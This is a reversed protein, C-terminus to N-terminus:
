FPLDDDGWTQAPTPTQATEDVGDVADAVDDGQGRPREQIVRHVRLWKGDKKTEIATVRAMEDRRELAEAVSGPVKTGVQDAWWQCAKRHAFGGEEHDLCVWESAIKRPVSLPGDDPSYYDVRMTIPAEDDGKKAHAHWQVEGVPWREPVEVPQSVLWSLAPLNSAKENAKKEKIPFVFGCHGCESASAPVQAACEPCTKIPAKGDGKSKPKVRVDDVPGHRAINGGYDLILCDRKETALRMGRGVMQVYLSPSMTPRVLALVDVVPADFGTTLVDCSTIARLGRAKFLAIIRDREERPTEGTITETSIGRMQLENRLRKAHAVSTGFVLASTRGGDIALKVDDAVAVNVRDVDSAMELDKAAFEGMRVGVEDLSISATAYGTVVPSLWGDTILKKVEVTYAIATFLADDGETLYGQGLRYPTATFGLLRMDPNEERLKAITSHYQAGETPSVLHCEDVIMVDIRGLLAPKRAISQIGCVTIPRVERRSLGASYIGIPADPWVSRVAKTDQVILEARHTVIAVRCGYDQVLRRVTEGITPSKGSGTPMVVLPSAPKETTSPARDWYSFIADVAERQYDRLDM